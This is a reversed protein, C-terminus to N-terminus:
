RGGGRDAGPDMARGTARDTVAELFLDELSPRLPRLARVTVGAARARDLLPEVVAPDSGPVSVTSEALVAGAPLEGMAARVAGPSAAFDLEYRARDRTLEDITGQSAVRGKVLIAVRDCVMELESLLHSNIFVTKGREKLTRVMDRIDKRGVPDVGDTPEDLIVLDPDNVLAQAIGVRQRMGKSYRNVRQDAWSRMGVFDLLEEGRARREARPTGSLAGLFDVVQRGTLYEPFRHHEPLYGIRGLTPRHGLPRDLV